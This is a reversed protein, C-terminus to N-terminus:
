LGISQYENDGEILIDRTPIDTRVTTGVEKIIIMSTAIKSKITELDITTTTMEPPIEM